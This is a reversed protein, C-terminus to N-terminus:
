GEREKLKSDAVDGAGECLLCLATGNELDIPAGPEEGDGLCRPCEM